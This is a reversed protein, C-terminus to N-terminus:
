KCAPVANPSLAVTSSEAATLMRIAPRTPAFGVDGDYYIQWAILQDITDAGNIACGLEGSLRLRLRDIDIRIQDGDSILEGKGKRLGQEHPAEFYYSHFVGVLFAARQPTRPMTRIVSWVLGSSYV